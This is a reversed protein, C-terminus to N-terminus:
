KQGRRELIPLGAETPIYIVQNQTSSLSDIWLYRLYAENGSLSKGIILNAEAVGRAREVEAQSLAKASELKAQAEKITIQRNWEAKKLEAEGELGQQWVHYQPCGYMCAPTVICLGFAMLIAALTMEKKM